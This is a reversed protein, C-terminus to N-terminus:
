QLMYGLPSYGFYNNGLKLGAYATGLISLSGQKFVVPAPWPVARQRLGVTNGTWIGSGWKFSGWDTLSGSATVTATQLAAGSEDNFTATLTSGSPIAAMIATQIMCNEAMQENDPLLATQYNVQLQVSNETYTTSPGPIADARWLQGALIKPAVVFSQGWAQILSPIFTHPGAWIKRTIDYWWEQDTATIGAASTTTIRIVDATSAAVIRSPYQSYVFPVCVGEGGEGIPDSVQAQFNIVRMGDPSMFALGFNTAVISLPANTGTSVNLINVALNSTATDGTIQQMATVGQFAIVAQVIGGTIPSSLPLGALATVPVGNAFTIAQTANTVNCANLSDSFVVSAGVAFYARGNFQTVAVPVSPLNNINTDGAGWLPASTSGGAFTTSSSSSGTASASMTVTKGDTSISVVTTGAPVDTKTITHGPQVGPLVTSAFTLSTTGNTTGSATYTFGSIDFWGFKKTGGPFGPHTVIIRTGIVAMIPPTWAGGYAPSTPVNASTVGAVTNFSGTLLNYSFPEDKGSNRATSLMGYAINGVVLLASIFGPTTFGPFNTLQVAAPRPVWCNMTDIAPILNQALSLAGLQANSADVTDCVGRPRFTLSQQRRIPM